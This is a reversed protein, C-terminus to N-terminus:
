RNLPLNLQVTTGRDPLTTRSEISLTGNILESRERMNMLGFSGRQDYNKEAAAVDFGRGDDRVTVQLDGGNMALSIWVNEANAHRKANNIAEQVISFVIGAVKTELETPLPDAELHATFKETEQLQAVYHELAPLLGQTELIIPRLEFLVLRAERTAQHVLKRLAEMEPLANEPKIQILKQLHDLNMSIASLLQITGDHLNRALARRVDEQAKIIRDREARLSQYLRANEIAIAAEAAMSTMLRLDEEDFGAGSLKNLVELVGITRGKIKLPVAAISETLFGTRVDVRPSFRADARVDNAIVPRGKRAVWGAIGEELPIRQRRLLESRSGHSVEFVLEQAQEDLLIISAAGADIVNAAMQTTDELLKTIDFTTVLAQGVQYFVSLQNVRQHAMSLDAMLSALQGIGRAMWNLMKRHSTNLSYPHPLILTLSGVVRQGRLLPVNLLRLRGDVLPSSSIPPPQDAPISWISEKLRKQISEEWRDIQAIAEQRFAGIRLRQPPRAQFVVSGGEAGFRKVLFSLASRLLSPLDRATALEFFKDLVALDLSSADGADASASTSQKM